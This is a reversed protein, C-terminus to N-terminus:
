LSIKNMRVIIESQLIMPDIIRARFPIEPQPTKIRTPMIVLGM